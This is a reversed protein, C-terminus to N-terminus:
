RTIAAKEYLRRLPEPAWWNWRGLVTMTAPVLLCRVLTADVLVAVALAFGVEKIILLRGAVFGAFVVIIIAAASTIVRGSRQLGLRVAEETPHGADHLEKVRSLLFVEYDMALGFAFALVLAVVYSEIGGVGVFDLPGSLHGEQFGWVLVGMSAALSLANTLLAKVPIVVSGTMFFLLVLTALAVIGVVWWVRSALAQTFDISRAAQGTVWVPFGPDLGRVDSVVSRAVAGGADSSDPRLGIEVYSGTARPADVSAVDPLDALQAAWATAEDLSTEALVTVAASQAAPYNDVIAALFDRQSSGAPLLEAGSNRVELHRVPLATLGLVVVCGAIVWWPRRQVRATLRSFFGESSQVDSTRAMVARLGPVRLVPSPRGLRRGTMVLLAPVLTLATALAVVVVAVSAAGIARLIPPTFVLLGAISIAVTVASFTVTRGATALTREVATAVTGDGRRRRTAAGGDTDVLRHLEERFRSVVLLGYDISLGIGLATLVNVSSADVDMLYTLGLVVALGVGISALAGAMPMGAALFGGFVFVMAVLAIPLAVAEGTRLDKEVQGHIDDVILSTGGVLGTAEPAVGALRAPVGDLVAQVASLAAREDDPALGPDLGVVLLFGRGDQALLPAAAPNTTGGPLVLPDVVSAVGPVAALEARVPTLAAQLPASSPDVGSLVLTLSEGSQDVQALLEDAEKSQSGPVAPAGSSVRDFLSEGGHVGLVAVAYGGVALVLWVVVTVRPHRGIVRGLRAFVGTM